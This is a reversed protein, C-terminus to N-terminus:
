RVLQALALGWGLLGAGCLTLVPSLAETPEVGSWHGQQGVEAGEMRWMIRCGGTSDGPVRSGLGRGRARREEAWCFYTSFAQAWSNLAPPVSLAM